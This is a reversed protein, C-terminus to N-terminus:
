SARSGPRPCWAQPSRQPRGPLLSLEPLPSVTPPKSNATDDLSAIAARVNSLARAAAVADPEVVDAIRRGQDPLLSLVPLEATGDEIPADITDGTAANEPVSELPPTEAARSPAPEIVAAATAAPM